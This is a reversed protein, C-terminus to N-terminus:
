IRFNNYNRSSLAAISFNINETTSLNIKFASGDREVLMEAWLPFLLYNM